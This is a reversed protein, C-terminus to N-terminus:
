DGRPNKGTNGAAVDLGANRAASAGRHERKLIRVNKDAQRFKELIQPTMDSSGDDVVILEGNKPLQRLVSELCECIYNECNYAPVIVSLIPPNRRRFKRIECVQECESLKKEGSMPDFVMVVALLFDDAGALM